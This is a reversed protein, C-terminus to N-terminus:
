SYATKMQWMNDLLRVHKQTLKHTRFLRFTQYHRIRLRTTNMNLTMNHTVAKLHFCKLHTMVSDNVASLRWLDQASLQRNQTFPTGEVEKNLCFWIHWKLSFLFAQQFQQRIFLLEAWRGRGGRCQLRLLRNGHFHWLPCDSMFHSWGAWCRHCYSVVATSTDTLHIRLDRYGWRWWVCVGRWVSAAELVVSGWDGRRWSLWAGGKEGHLM